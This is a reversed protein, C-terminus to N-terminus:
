QYTDWEKSVLPACYVQHVQLMEALLPEHRPSEQSTYLCSSPSVIDPPGM